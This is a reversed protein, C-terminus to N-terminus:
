TVKWHCVSVFLIYVSQRLVSFHVVFVVVSLQRQIPFRSFITWVRDLLQKLLKWENEIATCYRQQGQKETINFMSIKWIGYKLLAYVIQGWYVAKGGSPVWLNQNSHRMATFSLKNSNFDRQLSTCYHLKNSEDVWVRAEESKRATERKM